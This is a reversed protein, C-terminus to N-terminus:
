KLDDVALSSHRCDGNLTKVTVTTSKGEVKLEEVLTKKVFCGQSCNEFM